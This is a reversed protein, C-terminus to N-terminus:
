RICRGNPGVIMLDVFTSGHHNNPGYNVTYGGLDLKGMGEIASV